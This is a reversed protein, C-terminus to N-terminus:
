KVEMVGTIKSNEDIVFSNKANEDKFYVNGDITIEQLVVNNAEVYVDGKLTGGELKAGEDKIILKPVTLTYVNKVTGSEDKDFIALIRPTDIMSSKDESNIKKFGPNLTVEEEIKLDKEVIVIWSNNIASKFSEVSNARSSSAVADNTGEVMHNLDEKINEHGKKSCGWLAFTFILLLLSIILSKFKM